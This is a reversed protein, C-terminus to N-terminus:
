LLTSPSTMHLCCYVCLKSCCSVESLAGSNAKNFSTQQFTALKNTSPPDESRRYSGATGPRSGPSGPQGWSNGSPQAALGGQVHLCTKSFRRKATLGCLHKLGICARQVEYTAQDLTGIGAHQEVHSIHVLLLLHRHTFCSAYINAAVFYINCAPRVQLRALRKQQNLAIQQQVRNSPTTPRPVATEVPKAAPITEAALVDGDEEGFLDNKYSKFSQLPM